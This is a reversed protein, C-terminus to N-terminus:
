LGHLGCLRVHLAHLSFERGVQFPESGMQYTLEGGRAIEEYSLWTREFNGGNLTASQIYINESSVGNAKIVFEKGGGVDLRIEEFFPATLQFTPDGPTMPFMGMAAAVYMAAM